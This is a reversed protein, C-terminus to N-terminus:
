VRSMCVRMEHVELCVKARVEEIQYERGIGQGAEPEWTEGKLSLRKKADLIM